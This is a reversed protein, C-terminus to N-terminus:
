TEMKERLCYLDKHLTEMYCFKEIVDKGSNRFPVKREVYYEWNKLFITFINASM